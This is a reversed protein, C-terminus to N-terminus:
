TIESTVFLRLRPFWNNGVESAQRELSEFMEQKNRLKSDGNGYSQRRVKKGDTTTIRQEGRLVASDQYVFISNDSQRCIEQAGATWRTAAVFSLVATLSIRVIISVRRKKKREM